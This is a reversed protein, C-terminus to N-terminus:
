SHFHSIVGGAFKIRSFNSSFSLNRALFHVFSAGKM